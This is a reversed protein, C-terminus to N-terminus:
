CVTASYRGAKWEGKSKTVPVTFSTGCTWALKTATERGVPGQTGELVGSDGAVDLKKLRFYGAPLSDRESYPIADPAVVTRGLEIFAARVMPSIEPGVVIISATERREIVKLAARAAISYVSEV